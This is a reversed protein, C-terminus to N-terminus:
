LIHPNGNELFDSWDQFGPVFKICSPVHKCLVLKRTCHPCDVWVLCGKRENNKQASEACIHEPCMCSPEHCLHSCHDGRIKMVGGAWLLLEELVCFKNAGGWSVQIYGDEKNRAHGNCRCWGIEEYDLGELIKHCLVPGSLGPEKDRHDLGVPLGQCRARM